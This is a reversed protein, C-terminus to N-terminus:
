NQSNFIIFMSGIITNKTAMFSATCLRVCVCIFPRFKRFIFLVFKTKSSEFNIKLKSVFVIRGEGAHMQTNIVTTVNVTSHSKTWCAFLNVLKIYYETTRSTYEVNIADISKKGSTVYIKVITVCMRSTSAIIECFNNRNYITYEHKSTKIDSIWRSEKCM